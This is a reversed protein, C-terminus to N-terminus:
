GDKKEESKPVNKQVPFLAWAANILRLVASQYPTSMPHAEIESMATAADDLEKLDDPHYKEEVCANHLNVIKEALKPPFGIGVPEKDTDAVAEDDILINASSPTIYEVKWKM